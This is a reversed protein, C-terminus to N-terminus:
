PDMAIQLSIPTFLEGFLTGLTKRHDLPCRWHDSQCRVRDQKKLANLVTKMSVITTTLLASMGVIRPKHERVAAIFTEGPVDTGLDVMDFGAGKLMMGVLNKGIDHLNDQVTVLVVKDM